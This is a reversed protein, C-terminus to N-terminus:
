LSTGLGTRARGFPNTEARGSKHNVVSSNLQCANGSLEGGANAEWDARRAQPGHANSQPNLARQSIAPDRADAARGPRDRFPVARARLRGSYDVGESGRM